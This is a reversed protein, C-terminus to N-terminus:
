YRFYKFNKTFYFKLIVHKNGYNQIGVNLNYELIILISTMNLLSRQYVIMLDKFHGNEDPGNNFKAIDVALPMKWDKEDRQYPMTALMLSLIVKQAKTQRYLHQVYQAFERSNFESLM